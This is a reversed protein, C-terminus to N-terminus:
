VVIPLNEKNIRMYRMESLPLKRLSSLSNQESKLSKSAISMTTIMQFLLGQTIWSEKEYPFLVAGQYPVRNEM